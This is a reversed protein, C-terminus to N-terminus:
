GACPPDKRSAVYASRVGKALWPGLNGAIFGLAVAILVVKAPSGWALGTTVCISAVIALTEAAFHPKKGARDPHLYNIAAAYVAISIALALGVAGSGAPMVDAFAKFLAPIGSVGDVLEKTNGALLVLLAAGSVGTAGLIRANLGM